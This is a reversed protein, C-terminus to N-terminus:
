RGWHSPSRSQNPMFQRKTPEGRSLVASDRAHKHRQNRTEAPDVMYLHDDQGSSLTRPPEGAPSLHMPSHMWANPNVTGHPSGSHARFGHVIPQHDDDDEDSEESSSTEAYTDARRLQHTHAQREPRRERMTRAYENSSEDQYGFVSQNSDDNEEEVESADGENSGWEISPPRFPESSHSRLMERKHAHPRM